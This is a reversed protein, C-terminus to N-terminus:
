FMKLIGKKDIIEEIKTFTVSQNKYDKIVTFTKDELMKGVLDSFPCSRVKRGDILQMWKGAMDITCKSSGIAYVESLTVITTRVGLRNLVKVAVDHDFSPIGLIQGESTLLITEQNAGIGRSSKPVFVFAQDIKDDIKGGMSSYALLAFESLSNLPLTNTKVFQNRLNPPLLSDIVSTDLALDNNLIDIMEFFNMKKHRLQTGAFKIIANNNTRIGLAVLDMIESFEANYTGVLQNRYLNIKKCNPGLVTIKSEFNELANPNGETMAAFRELSIAVPDFNKYEKFYHQSKQIFIENDSLLPVGNRDVSPIYAQVETNMLAFLNDSNSEDCELAPTANLNFSFLKLFLFFSLYITKM